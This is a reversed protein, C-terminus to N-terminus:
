VGGVAPAYGVPALGGALGGGDIIFGEGTVYSSADSALYLALPGLEWAEGLRRVPVYRGRARRIDAEQEDQPPRQSVFGPIICNVRVNQRAFMVALSKTIAVVGAKVAGYAFAEPHGRLGSGSAVNIVVGGGQDIMPKIAARACYFISSLNTDVTDHWEADSVDFLEKGRAAGGGGANSLMVDIRGFEELTREILRDCQESSRVDTPVTIARRGLDQIQRATEEIQEATRAACVIDAGAKALTLAMQQGLGRGSGTVVVVKGDMRFRDLYTVTCGRTVLAARDDAGVRAVTLRAARPLLM